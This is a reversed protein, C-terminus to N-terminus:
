CVVPFRQALRREGLDGSVTSASPFRERPTWPFARKRVEQRCEAV